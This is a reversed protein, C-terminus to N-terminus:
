CLPLPGLTTFIIDLIQPVELSHMYERGFWYIRFLRFICPCVFSIWAKQDGLKPRHRTNSIHEQMGAHPM